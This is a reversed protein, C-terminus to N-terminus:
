VYDYENQDYLFYKSFFKARTQALSDEKDATFSMGISFCDKSNERQIRGYKMILKENSVGMNEVIIDNSNYSGMSYFVYENEEVLFEPLFSRSVGNNSDNFEVSDIM